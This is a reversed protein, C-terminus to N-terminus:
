KELNLLIDEPTVVMAVLFGLDSFVSQTPHCIELRGDELNRKALFDRRHEDRGMAPVKEM